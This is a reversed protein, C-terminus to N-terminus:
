KTADILVFLGFRDFRSRILRRPWLSKALRLAAGRHRQGVEGELLDGFSLQSRVDAHSFQEFMQRTEDLTYAKTGPSELHKAYIDAM